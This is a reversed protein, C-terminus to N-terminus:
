IIIRTECESEQNLRRELEEIAVKMASRMFDLNPRVYRQGDHTNKEQHALRLPALALSIAIFATILPM